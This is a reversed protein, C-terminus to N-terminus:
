QKKLIAEIENMSLNYDLIKMNNMEFKEIYHMSSVNPLRYSHYYMVTEKDVNKICVFQFGKYFPYIYDDFWILQYKKTSRMDLLKVQIWRLLNLTNIQDKEILSCVVGIHASLEDLDGLVDFIINDKSIKRIDYLNTMGNDGTKTYLRAM